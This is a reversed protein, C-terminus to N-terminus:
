HGTSGKKEEVNNLDYREFIIRVHQLTIPPSHGHLYRTVDGENSGPHRIIALLVQIIMNDTINNKINQLVIQEQRRKIQEQSVVPDSHFYVFYNVISKRIIESKQVLELLTNHVRLRLREKLESHTVGKDSEQVLRRVTNKLSGDISFHIGKFSWLGYRDFRSPDYFTYYKGNHNYSRRYPIQKLYRFITPSSADHLAEKIDSFDAVTKTNFLDLLDKASRNKSM